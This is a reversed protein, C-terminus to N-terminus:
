PMIHMLGWWRPISKVLFVKKLLMHHVDQILISACLENYGGFLWPYCVIYMSGVHLGGIVGLGHVGPERFELSSCCSSMFFVIIAMTRVKLWGAELDVDGVLVHHCFGGDGTRSHFV